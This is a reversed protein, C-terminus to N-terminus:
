EMGLRVLQDDPAEIDLLAQRLKDAQDRERSSGRINEDENPDDQLDYLHNGSFPGIAWYPLLDGQQFPQRIVPITSGPMKDLFARDDPKPMRIEPRSPLPMTSWRNSWMSLPANANEPARAYKYRDDILHVERGWVGCLVYDRISDAEGRILPLLSTGHTRHKIDVDFLDVLTAFIDSTTTLAPVNAPEVGPWSIM